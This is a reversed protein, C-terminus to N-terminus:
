QSGYSRKQKDTCMTKQKSHSGHCYFSNYSWFCAVALGCLHYYCIQASTHLTHQPLNVYYTLFASSICLYTCMLADDNHDTGFINVIM